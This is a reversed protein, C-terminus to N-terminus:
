LRALIKNMDDIEGQQAAVIEQAMAKADANTGKALAEKAMTIAGEHHAIMMTLFQRDFESGTAGALRTMDADSMMGPMGHDMGPMGHGPGDSPVARGWGALWGTMTAIEPGQAGKIQVALRKVEADAARSDALEAMEVAQRHHPIMMQAFMVDADGFTASGSAPVGSTAAPPTDHGSSAHDASGCATLALAATLAGGALAARRAITRNTM